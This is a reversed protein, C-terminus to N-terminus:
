SPSAEPLEGGGPLAASGPPADGAVPCLGRGRRSGGGGNLFGESPHLVDGSAEPIGEPAESVEGPSEPVSGSGALVSEPSGLVCGPAGSVCESGELVCRSAELTTGSSGSTMGSAGSTTGSAGLSTESAESSTGSPGSTYASGEWPTNAAEPSTGSPGPSTGSAESPLRSRDPPTVSGGLLTQLTPVGLWEDLYTGTDAAGAVSLRRRSTLGIEVAGPRLPAFDRTPDAYTVSNMHSKASSLRFYHRFPLIPTESIYIRHEDSLRGLPIFLLNVRVVQEHLRHAGRFPGPLLRDARQSRDGPGRCFHIPKTPRTSAANRPWAERSPGSGNTSPM